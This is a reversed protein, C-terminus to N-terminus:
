HMDGFGFEKYSNPLENSSSFAFTYSARWSEFDADKDKSPEIHKTYLIYIGERSVKFYILGSADTSLKQPFISGGVTKVYLVVVADSLPQGKFKVLASVDDGYNMKYPNQQLIIEFDENLDKNYAKGSNKDVQLMTKMYNIYKEKFYLQNSNKVKDTIKDDVDDNLYRLFKNRSMENSGPASVVDILALGNDNVQYNLISDKALSTLDTTKSGQYLNFRITKLSPLLVGSEKSFDTTQLLHLNIKDGKQLYFNEPLLFYSQASAGFAPALLLIMLFLRINKM